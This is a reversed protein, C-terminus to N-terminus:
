SLTLFRWREDCALAVALVRPTKGIARTVASVAEAVSAVRWTSTSPTVLATDAANVATTGTGLEIYWSSASFGDTAVVAKALETLGTTVILNNGSAVVEGDIRVVVHGRVAVSSISQVVM